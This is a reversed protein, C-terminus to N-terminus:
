RKVSSLESFDNQCFGDCNVSPRRWAMLWASTRVIRYTFSGTPHLVAGDRAAILLEKVLLSSGESASAVSCHETTCGFTHM